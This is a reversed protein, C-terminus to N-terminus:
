AHSQDERIMSAIVETLREMQGPTGVTIRVFESIRPAAFHRVLIGAERLRDLVQAGAMGPLSLFLFNASSPLVRAGLRRLDSATKERTQVVAQVTKVFHEEDALAAIGAAQTMRDLNYPNTSYKITELDAILSPSAFCFGLRGGALARSKSFTRVVLLNEYRPLLALASEGGFDVYAEDILVPVDPNASLVREIDSLPLCMGTPANPNAIVVMRDNGVYDEAALSFDERLPLIRCDVGYLAGYVKYFGYTIDAFAAGRGEGCFAMFAFSLIEDSGNSVFVQEPRLGYRDALATKLARSEPDSYLQLRAAEEAVAQVVGPAPPYPLENTNLKILDRQRPQEGPTYPTLRSFRPHMFRSM